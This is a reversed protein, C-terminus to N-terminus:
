PKLGSPGPPSGLLQKLLVYDQANVFGNANIDGTLYAGPLALQGLQARFLTHDQSNTRLNNNLDGDCRNGYGDADADVQRPNHLLTCNDQSDSWGDDDSDPDLEHFVVVTSAVSEKGSLALAKVSWCYKAMPSEVAATTATGSVNMSNVTAGQACTTWEVRSGSQQSPLFTTGDANTTPNVWSIRYTYGWVPSVILALFLLFARM